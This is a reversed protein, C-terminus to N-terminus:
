KWNLSNETDSDKINETNETGSNTGSQEQAASEDQSSSDQIVQPTYATDFKIRDNVQIANKVTFNRPVIMTFQTGTTACVSGTERAIKTIRANTDMFIVDVLGQLLSTNVCPLKPKDYAFLLGVNDNIPTKKNILQQQELPNTSIRFRMKKGRFTLTLYSNEDYREVADDEFVTRSNVYHPTDVGNILSETKPAPTPALDNTNLKITSTRACSVAMLLAIIALANKTKKMNKLGKRLWKVAKLKKKKLISSNYWM